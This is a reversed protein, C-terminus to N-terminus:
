KRREGITTAIRIQVVISGGETRLDCHRGLLLDRLLLGHSGGVGLSLSRAGAGLLGYTDAWKSKLLSAFFVWRWCAIRRQGYGSGRLSQQRNEGQLARSLGHSDAKTAAVIALTLYTM